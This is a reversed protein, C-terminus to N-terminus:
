RAGSWSEGTWAVADALEPASVAARVRVKAADLLWEDFVPLDAPGRGGYFLWISRESSAQTAAANAISVIPAM